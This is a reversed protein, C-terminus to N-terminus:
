FNLPFQVTYPLLLILAQNIVDVIFTCLELFILSFAKFHNIRSRGVLNAENDLIKQLIKWINCNSGEISANRTLPIQKM